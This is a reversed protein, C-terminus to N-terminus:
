VLQRVERTQQPAEDTPLPIGSKIWKMCQTMLNFEDIFGVQRDPHTKQLMLRVKSTIEKVDDPLMGWDMPTGFFLFGHKAREVQNHIFECEARLYNENVRSSLQYRNEWYPLGNGLPDHKKRIAVLYGGLWLDSVTKHVHQKTLKNGRGELEHLISSVSHPPNGGCDPLYSDLVELILVRNKTMKM